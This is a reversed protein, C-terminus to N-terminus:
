KLKRALLRAHGRVFDYASMHWKGELQVHGLSLSDQGTGVIL